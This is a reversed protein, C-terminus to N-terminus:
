IGNLECVKINEIPKGLGKAKEIVLQDKILVLPVVNKSRAVSTSDAQWCGCSIVNGSRLAPGRAIIEGGCDCLCRWVAPKARSWGVVRDYDDGCLVQEQVVLRGHRNGVENIIAKSCGCTKQGARLHAAGVAKVVGCDCQCLWVAGKNGRIAKIREYEPGETLLSMAVLKGFREGAINKIKKGSPSRLEEPEAM